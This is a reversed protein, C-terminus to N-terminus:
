KGTYGLVYFGKEFHKVKTNNTVLRQDINVLIGQVNDSLRTDIVFAKSDCGVSILMTGSSNFKLMKVAKEHVSCEEIVKPENENSFDIFVIKGSETGVAVLPMNSHSSVSTCKQNLSVRNVIRKLKHSWVQLSGNEKLVVFMIGNPNINALAVTRGEDFNIAHRVLNMNSANEYPILEQNRVELIKPIDLVFVGNSSSVALNTYQRNFSSNTFQNADLQLISKVRISQKASNKQPILDSGELLRVCSDSCVALMVKRHFKLSLIRFDSNIRFRPDTGDDIM